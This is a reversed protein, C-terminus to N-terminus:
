RFPSTELRTLFCVMLLSREDHNILFTVSAHVRFNATSNHFSQVPPHRMYDAFLMRLQVSDTLSTCLTNGQSKGYFRSAPNKHYIHPYMQKHTGSFKATTGIKTIKTGSFAIKPYAHIGLTEKRFYPHASMWLTHSRLNRKQLIPSSVDM